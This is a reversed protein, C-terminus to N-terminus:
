AANRLARIWSVCKGWSFGLAWVGAAAGFVISIEEATLM